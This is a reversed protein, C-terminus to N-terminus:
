IYQYSLLSNNLVNQKDFLCQSLSNFNFVLEQKCEESFCINKLSRLSPVTCQCSVSVTVNTNNNVRGGMGLSAYVKVAIWIPPHKLKNYIFQGRTICGSCEM